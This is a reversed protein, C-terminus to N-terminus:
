SSKWTASTAGFDGTILPTSFCGTFGMKYGAMELPGKRGGSIVIPLTGSQLFCKSLFFMWPFRQSSKPLYPNTHSFMVPTWFVGFFHDSVLYTNQSIGEWFFDLM